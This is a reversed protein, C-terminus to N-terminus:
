QEPDILVLQGEFGYVHLQRQPDFLTASATSIVGSQSKM